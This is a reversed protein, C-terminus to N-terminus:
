RNKIKIFSYKGDKFILEFDGSAIKQDIEQLVLEDATNEFVLMLNVEPHNEIVRQYVNYNSFNDIDIQLDEMGPLYRIPYNTMIPEYDGLYEFYEYIQRNIYGLLIEKQQEEQHQLMAEDAVFFGAVIVILIMTIVLLYSRLEALKLKEVLKGTLEIIKQVSLGTVLGLIPLAISLNRPFISFAFAWILSYPILITAAIWVIASDLFPLTLLILPYLFFYKELLGVARTFRELLDRGGHRDGMLYAVNTDVRGTFIRYENYTYWPLIILLSIAFWKALFIMQQRFDFAEIERLVLLYALVPYLAFIFLGNQKTLATGAAFIFGLRLYNLQQRQENIALAKLLSYVTLMTFFALAVDVYGSSIYEGLFKKLTYRTAVVSIFYGPNKYELGLDFMLLLIYLNFLPMFSKAFFQIKTDGLFAYSVAFNTPILQAYRNTKIPFNGSYWETAWRNWSIISDWQTFISDLNTYWVKFAWWISSLAWVIFIVSIINMLIQGFKNHEKENSFIRLSSFYDLIQGNKRTTITELSGRLSNRYLMFIAILELGFLGYFSYTINLGLTTIGIVLLHNAILSLGFAFITTQLFGRKIDFFKLLLIGPLFTIQLFSLFGLIFM